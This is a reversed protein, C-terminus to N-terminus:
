HYLWLEFCPNSVALDIGRARALQRTDNLNPHDDVDFVCWVEDFAVFSDGEKRAASEAARKLDAAWRVLTLPVGHRDHIRVQVTNNRAWREFRRFYDPETVQGECVILPRRKVSRSPAGRAPRRERNRRDSGM